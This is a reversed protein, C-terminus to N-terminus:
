KLKFIITVGYQDMKLNNGDITLAGEDGNEGISVKGDAITYPVADSEHGGMVMKVKSDNTFVIEMTGYQEKCMAEFSEKTMGQQEIQGLLADNWEISISDFVYTDGAAPHTANNSCASFLVCPLIVLAIASMVTLSKLWNKM